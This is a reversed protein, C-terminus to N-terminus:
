KKEVLMGARKVPVGMSWALVGNVYVKEIGAATKFPDTYDGRESVAAPDFVVVDAYYGEKILGRDKLGLINSPVSTIKAIAKEIPMLKEERVLRLFKAASSTSRPHPKGIKQGTVFDQNRSDSIVAIDERRLFNLVDDRSMSHTIGAVDSSCRKMVTKYADYPTTKLMQAIEAFSRGEVEQWCGNTSGVFVKDPGGAREMNREVTERFENAYEPMDFRSTIEDFTGKKAWDPLLSKIGTSFATYPYQDATVICDKQMADLAALAADSKGWNVKHSVKLHSVHLHAGSEKAIRHVEELAEFITDDENRLHVAVIGNFEAVVKALEVLEGTECCMGPMYELGLSLGLAGNQLERRLVQKMTEIEESLPVTAYPDALCYDRLTGHGILVGINNGFSMDKLEEKMEAMCLSKISSHTQTKRPVFSSGCNGAIDTTVGQHLRAEYGPLMWPATDSHTHMDIFGPAVLMGRADLTEKAELTDDPDIKAIRGNQIYLAARYACAGSGDAILGNKIVLDFM